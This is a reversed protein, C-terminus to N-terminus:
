KLRTLDMLTWSNMNLASKGLIARIHNDWIVEPNRDLWTKFIKYHSRYRYTSDVRANSLSLSDILFQTLDSNRFFSDIGPFNIMSIIGNDLFVNVMIPHERQSANQHM